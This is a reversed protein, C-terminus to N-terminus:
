RSTTQPPTGPPPSDSTVAIAAIKWDPGVKKWVVLYKGIDTVPGSPSRMTIRNVGTEYALDGSAAVEIDTITASLGDFGMAAFDDYLKQIAAHGKAVPAGASQVIADDTYFAVADTFQKGNEAVVIAESRARIASEEAATDVAPSTDTACGALVVALPIWRPSAKCPM